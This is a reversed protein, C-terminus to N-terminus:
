ILEDILAALALTLLLAGAVQCAWAGRHYGRLAHARWEPDGSTSFRRAGLTKGWTGIAILVLGLGTELAVATATQTTM